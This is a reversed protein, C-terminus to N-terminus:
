LISRDIEKNEKEKELKEVFSSPKINNNVNDYVNNFELNCENGEDGFLMKTFDDTTFNNDINKSNESQKETMSTKGISNNNRKYKQLREPKLEPKLPYFKENSQERSLKEKVTTDSTKINTTDVIEIPDKANGNPSDNHNFPYDGNFNDAIVNPVKSSELSKSLDIVNHPFAKNSNICCDYKPNYLNFISRFISINTKPSIFKDKLIESTKINERNKETNKQNNNNIDYYNKDKTGNALNFLTSSMKQSLNTLLKVISDFFNIISNIIKKVEKIKNQLLFSKTKPISLYHDSSNNIQTSNLKLSTLHRDRFSKLKFKRLLQKLYKLNLIQLLFKLFNETGDTSENSDEQTLVFKLFDKLIKDNSLIFLLLYIMLKSNNSINTSYEQEALTPDKILDEYDRYGNFFNNKNM